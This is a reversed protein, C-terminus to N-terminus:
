IGLANREEELERVMDKLPALIKIQEKTLDTESDLRYIAVDLLRFLSPAKLTVPDSLRINNNYNRQIDVMRDFLLKM